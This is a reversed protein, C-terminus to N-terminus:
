SPRSVEYNGKGDLFTITVKRERDGVKVTCTFSGGEKVRQGSPCAANSVNTSKYDDTLVRVVGQQAADQSLTKPAWGPVLFATILVIAAIVVLGAAGIYYMTGSRKPKAQGMAGFPDNSGGFQGAPQQGFQASPQGYQAPPQQGYQQQGVPQQGYQQGFQQQGYQQAAPGYPGPQQGFPASPQGYAPQQGFEGSPPGYPAPNTLPATPGPQGPFPQSSPPTQIQETAQPGSQTPPATPQPQATPGLQTKEFPNPGSSTTPPTPTPGSPTQNFQTPAYNGPGTTPNPNPGSTSGTTANEDSADPQNPQAPENM